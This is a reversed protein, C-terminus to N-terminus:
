RQHAQEVALANRLLKQLVPFGVEVVVDLRQGVVREYLHADITALKLHVAQHLERFLLPQLQFILQVLPLLHVRHKNSYDALPPLPAPPM